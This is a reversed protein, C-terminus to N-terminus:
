RCDQTHIRTSRLTGSLWAEADDFLLFTRFANCRRRDVLENILINLTHYRLVLAVYIRREDLFEPVSLFENASALQILLPEVIHPGADILLGAGSLSESRLRLVADTFSSTSVDETLTLRIISSTPIEM